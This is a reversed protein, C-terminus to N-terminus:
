GGRPGKEEPERKDEVWTAVKSNKLSVGAKRGWADEHATEKGSPLTHTTRM